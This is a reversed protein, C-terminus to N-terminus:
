RSWTPWRRTRSPRWRSAAARVRGPFAVAVNSALTIQGNQVAVGLFGFQASLNLNAAQISAGVQLTNVRIFFANAESLGPTLNFGFTFNLDMSTTLSVDAGANVSLNYQAANAGLNLGVMTTRSAQYDLNFQLESGTGTEGGSVKTPDVTVDLAGFQGSLRQLATM